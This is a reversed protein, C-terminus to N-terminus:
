VAKKPNRQISFRDQNILNITSPIFGLEPTREILLVEYAPDLQKIYNAASIGAHSGGIIIAKM